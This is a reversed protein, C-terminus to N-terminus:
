IHPRSPSVYIKTVKTRKEKTKRDEPIFEYQSINGGECAGSCQTWSTVVELVSGV